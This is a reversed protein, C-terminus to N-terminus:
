LRRLLCDQQGILYYRRGREDAGPKLRQWRNDAGTAFAGAAAEDFEKGGADAVAVGPHRVRARYLLEEIPAVFAPEFQRVNLGDRDSGVYFLETGLGALRGDFLV